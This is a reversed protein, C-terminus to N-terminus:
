RSNKTLLVQVAPNMTGLGVDGWLRGLTRSEWGPQEQSLRDARADLWALMRRVASPAQPDAAAPTPAASTVAAPKSVYALGASLIGTLAYLVCAEPVKRRKYLGYGSAAAGVLGVIFLVPKSDNFQDVASYGLQAASAARARNIRVEPVAVAAEAAQTAATQALGKGLEGWDVAGLGALRRDELTRVLYTM